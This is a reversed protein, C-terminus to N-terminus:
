GAIPGVEVRSRKSLVDIWPNDNFFSPLQSSVQVQTPYIAPPDSPEISEISEIAADPKMQITPHNTHGLATVQIRLQEVSKEMQSYLSKLASLESLMDHDVTPSTPTQTYDCTSAPVIEEIRRDDFLILGIGYTRFIQADLNATLLKPAALYLLTASKRLSAIYLINKLIKNGELMDENTLIVVRITENSLTFSLTNHHQEDAKSQQAGMALFYHTLRQLITINAM